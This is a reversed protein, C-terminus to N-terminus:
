QLNLKLVFSHHTLYFTELTTPLLAFSRIEFRHNSTFLARWVYFPCKKGGSVHAKFIQRGKNKYGSNQSEGKQKTVLSANKAKKNYM